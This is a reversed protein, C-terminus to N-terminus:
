KISNIDQIIMENYQDLDITKNNISEELVKGDLIPADPLITQALIKKGVGTEGSIIINVPLSSSMQAINLLKKSAESKAIFKM